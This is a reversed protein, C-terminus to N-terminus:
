ADLAAAPATTATTAAARRRELRALKKQAYELTEKINKVLPNAPGYVRQATRILEELQLTAEAVDDRSAADDEFLCM